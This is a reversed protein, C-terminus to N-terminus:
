GLGMAWRAPKSWASRGKADWTRVKWWCVKRSPLAKGAYEINATESSAVKGSDWLDGRDRAIGAESSAVVIRYASQRAARVPSTVIWSLRPKAADVAMPATSFECRLRTPTLDCQARVGMPVFLVAVFAVAFQRFM